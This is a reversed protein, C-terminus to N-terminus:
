FVQGQGSIVIESYPSSNKDIAYFGLFYCKRRFFAVAGKEFGNQPFNLIVYYYNIAAIFFLNHRHNQPSSSNLTIALSM